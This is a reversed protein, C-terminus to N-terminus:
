KPQRKSYKGKTRISILHANEPLKRIERWYEERVDEDIEIIGPYLTDDGEQKCGSVWFEEGTEVDYYNAKYGGKLSQLKRGNYYITKGTKSFQVRGIRGPVALSDGKYEIYMIKNKDKRTRQGQIKEKDDPDISVDDEMYREVGFQEMKELLEKKDEILEKRGKKYAHAIMDDYYTLCERFEEPTWDRYDKKQLQFFWKRKQENQM